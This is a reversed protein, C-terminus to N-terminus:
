LIVTIRNHLPKSLYVNNAKIRISGLKQSKLGQYKSEINKGAEKRRALYDYLKEDGGVYKSSETM